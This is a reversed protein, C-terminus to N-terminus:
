AAERHQRATGLIEEHELRVDNDGAHEVLAGRAIAVGHGVVSNAGIVADPGIRAGALVQAGAGITCREGLVCDAAVSAFAEVHSGPGVDTAACLASAHVFAPDSM